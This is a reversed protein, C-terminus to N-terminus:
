GDTQTVVLSNEGNATPGHVVPAFVTFAVPAGAEEFLDPAYDFVTVGELPALTAGGAARLKLVRDMGEPLLLWRNGPAVRASVLGLSERWAAGDWIMRLRANLFRRCQSLSDSDTQGAKACVFEALESLTM